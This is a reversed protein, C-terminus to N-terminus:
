DFRILFYMHQLVCFCTHMHYWKKKLKQKTKNQKLTPKVMWDLIFGETHNQWLRRDQALRTWTTGIYTYLRYEYDFAIETLNIVSGYITYYQMLWSLLRGSAFKPLIRKLFVPAFKGTDGHLMFFNLNLFNATVQDHQSYGGVKPNKNMEFIKLFFWLDESWGVYTFWLDWFRYQPRLTFIFGCSVGCLALSRPHVKNAKTKVHTTPLLKISKWTENNWIHLFYIASAGLIPKAWMCMTFISRM